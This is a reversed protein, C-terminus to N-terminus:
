NKLKFLSNIKNGDILVENLLEYKKFFNEDYNQNDLYYNTIWYEAKHKDTEEFKKRNKDSLSFLPHWLRIQSSNWINYIEKDENNILYDLNEKYSVAMYDLEFYKSANKSIFKNFYVYQHPHNKIM